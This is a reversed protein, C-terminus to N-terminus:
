IFFTCKALNREFDVKPALLWESFGAEGRLSWVDYLEMRWWTLLADADAAAAGHQGHGPVDEGFGDGDGGVLLVRSAFRRGM